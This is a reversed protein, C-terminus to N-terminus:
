LRAPSPDNRGPVDATSTRYGSFGRGMGPVLEFPVFNLKAPVAVIALLGRAGDLFQWFVNPIRHM